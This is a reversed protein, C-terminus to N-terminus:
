NPSSFYSFLFMYFLSAITCSLVMAPLGRKSWQGATIPRRTRESLSVVVINATSGIITGNGGFGAGFVLAWWLPIVNIGAEALSMFVPILAITIPINDIIASLVAVIWIVAVGLLVPNMAQALQEIGRAVIDLVGAAELGGVMIFLAAFFLLVTWEVHAFVQGLDPPRIWLLATAAAGMAVFAPSIHFLHHIFFLIIALGLVVIVKRATM